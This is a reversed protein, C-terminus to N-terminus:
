RGDEAAERRRWGELWERDLNVVLFPFGNRLTTTFIFIRSFFEQKLDIAAARDLGLAAWRDLVGEPLFFSFHVQRDVGGAFLTLFWLNPEQREYHIHGRIQAWSPLQTLSYAEDDTNRMFLLDGNELMGVHIRPSSERFEAMLRSFRDHTGLFELAAEHVPSESNDSRDKFFRYIARQTDEDVTRKLYDDDISAFAAQTRRTLLSTMSLLQIKNNTAFEVAPKTFRGFSAVGVQYWHRTRPEVAYTARTDNRRRSISEKTVIEFENIDYRLGLSARLTPLGVSKSYGKCEFLVRAPYSFPIQFPPDMLVDADHAAGKGNVFFLGKSEFTYLNDAAVSNFGCNRLLSRVMYELLAGRLMRAKM